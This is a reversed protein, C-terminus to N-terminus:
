LLDVLRIESTTHGTVLRTPLYVALTPSIDWALATNSAWTKTPALNASLWRAVAEEQPTSVDTAGQPQPPQVFVRTAQLEM